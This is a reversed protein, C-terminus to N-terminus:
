NARSNRLLSDIAVFSKILLESIRSREKSCFIRSIVVDEEKWFFVVINM